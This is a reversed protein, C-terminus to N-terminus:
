QTRKFIDVMDFFITSDGVNYNHISKVKLRRSSKELIIYDRYYDSTKKLRLIKLDGASDLIFYRGTDDGLYDDAAWSYRYTSDKKFILIGSEYPKSLKTTPGNTSSDKKWTGIYSESTQNQCSVSVFFLM